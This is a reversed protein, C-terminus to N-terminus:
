PTSRERCNHDHDTHGARDPGYKGPPPTNHPEQSCIKEYPVARACGRVAACTPYLHGLHHYTWQTNRKTTKRTGAITEAKVSPTSLIVSSGFALFCPSTTPIRESCLVLAVM